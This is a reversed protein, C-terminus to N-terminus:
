LIQRDSQMGEYGSFDCFLFAILKILFLENKKLISPAFCPFFDCYKNLQINWGIHGALPSLISFLFIGQGQRSYLGLDKAPCGMLCSIEM